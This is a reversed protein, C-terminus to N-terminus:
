LISKLFVKRQSDKHRHTDDEVVCEFNCGLYTQTHHRYRQHDSRSHQSLRCRDPLHHLYEQLIWGGESEPIEATGGYDDAARYVYPGHLLGEGLLGAPIFVEAVSVCVSVEAVSLSLPLTSLPTELVSLLLSTELTIELLSTIALVWM